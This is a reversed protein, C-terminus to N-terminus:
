FFFVGEQLSREGSRPRNDCHRMECVLGDMMQGELRNCHSLQGVRGQRVDCCRGGM